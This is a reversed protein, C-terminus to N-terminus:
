AAAEAACRRVREVMALFGNSRQPTLAEKLGLRDFFVRPDVSLIDAPTRGSFVRLLLAILGRVLHADSDGRLYLKEPEGGRKECVLWVQSACGRVRTADSHEAQSLPDLTRGLEIVHSYREEWDSFLAFEQVIDEIAADVSDASM